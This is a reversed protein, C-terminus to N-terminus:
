SIKPDDDFIIIKDIRVDTDYKKTTTVIVIKISHNYNKM